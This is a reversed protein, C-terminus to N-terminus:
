LTNASDKDTPDRVMAKARDYDCGAVWVQTLCPQTRRVIVDNRLQADIGADLLKTQIAFAEKTTCCECFLAYGSEEM